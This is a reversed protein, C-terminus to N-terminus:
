KEGKAIATLAREILKGGAPEWYRQNQARAVRAAETFCLAVAADAIERASEDRTM